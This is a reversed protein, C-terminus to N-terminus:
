IPVSKTSVISRAPSVGSPRPNAGLRVRRRDVCQERRGSLLAGSDAVGRATGSVQWLAMLWHSCPCSCSYAVWAFWSGPGLKWAHGTLGALLEIVGCVAGVRAGLTRRHGVAM